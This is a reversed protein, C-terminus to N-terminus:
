ALKFKRLREYVAGTPRLRSQMLCVAGVEFSGLDSVKAAQVAEGIKQRDAPSVREDVRGLTLHPSFPRKETPFGQAALEEDVREQLERLRDAEGGIGVWLVRPRHPSPFMGLGNMTLSFSKAKSAARAVGAAIPEVQGEPVYGLFKLTLHIGTPSVWRVGFGKTKLHNQVQSLRDRLGEPLEIAIFVRLKTGGKDNEEM